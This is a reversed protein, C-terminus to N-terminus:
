SDVCTVCVASFMINAHCCIYKFLSVSIMDHRKLVFLITIVSFKRFINPGLLFYALNQHLTTLELVHKKKYPLNLVICNM